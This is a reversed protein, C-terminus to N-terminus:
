KLRDLSKISRNLIWVSVGFLALLVGASWTWPFQVSINRMRAMDLEPGPRLNALKEWAAPTGLMEEGVRALNASYSVLLGGLRHSRSRTRARRLQEPRRSPPPPNRAPPRRARDRAARDFHRRHGAVRRALVDGRLALQPLPVVARPILTGASAAIILGYAISALLLPFTDKIIAFDLSFLVGLVYAAISPVITV